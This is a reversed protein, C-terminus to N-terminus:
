GSSASTAPRLRRQFSESNAILWGLMLDSHWFYQKRKGLADYKLGAGSSLGDKVVSVEVFGGETQDIFVQARMIHKEFASRAMWREARPRSHLHCPRLSRTMIPGCKSASFMASDFRTSIATTTAITTTAFRKKALRPENIVFSMTTVLANGWRPATRIMDISAWLKLAM